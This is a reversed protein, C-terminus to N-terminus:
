LRTDMNLFQGSSLHVEREKQHYGIGELGGLPRGGIFIYDGGGKLVTRSRGSLVDAPFNYFGLFAYNLYYFGCLCNHKVSVLQHDTPDFHSSM